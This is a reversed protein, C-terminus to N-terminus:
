KFGPRSFDSMPKYRDFVHYGSKSKYIGEATHSKNFKLQEIDFSEDFKMGCQGLKVWKITASFPEIGNISVSIKQGPQLAIVLSVGMGNESINRITTEFPDTGACTLTAKAYRTSRNQREVLNKEAGTDQSM